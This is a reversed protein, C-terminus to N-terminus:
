KWIKNNKVKSIISVDVSYKSALEKNLLDSNRINKVNQLTLKSNSHTENHSHRKQVVCHKRNEENTCWELNSVCNNSRNNDIHNVDPKNSHNIIFAQAVLRHVSCTKFKKDKSLSVVTYGSKKVFGKLLRNKIGRLTYFYSYVKGTNSVKYLGEYGVVDKWVEEM